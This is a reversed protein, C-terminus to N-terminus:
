NIFVSYGYDDGGNVNEREMMSVFYSGYSVSTYRDKRNRGQEHIMIVGSDQKKEYILEVTESILAQTELFPSEFFVQVDASPSINYEKIKPLTEEKALEFNILFDIRKENLVRRFDLAIDSNLKQSATVAYICANAGDVKIRNAINDDNMCSLPSYYLDREDDYIERALLDYVSIM